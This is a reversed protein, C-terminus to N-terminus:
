PELNDLIWDYFSSVRTFVNPAINNACGFKSFSVIGQQIYKPEDYEALQGIEFSPGGSDGVCAKVGKQSGACFQKGTLNVADGFTQGCQRLGILDIDIQLLSESPKGKETLGWGTAILQEGIEISSSALCIPNVNAKSFDAPQQLRILAIDSDKTSKSYQPHVVFSEISIIQVPPACFGNCDPDTNKTHEGLIM